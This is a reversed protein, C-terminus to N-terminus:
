DKEFGGIDHLLQTMVCKSTKRSNFQIMVIHKQICFQGMGHKLYWTINM